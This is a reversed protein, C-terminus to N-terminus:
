ELPINVVPCCVRSCSDIFVSIFGDLVIDIALRIIRRSLGQLAYFENIFIIWCGKFRGTKLPKRFWKKLGYNLISTFIMRIVKTGCDSSFRPGRLPNDRTYM